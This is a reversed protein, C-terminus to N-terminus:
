SLASTFWHGKKRPPQVACCLLYSSLEKPRDPLFAPASSTVKLCSSLLFSIFSQDRFNNRQNSM